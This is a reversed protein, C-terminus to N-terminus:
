VDDLFQSNLCCYSVMACRHSRGCDLVSVTVTGAPALSFEISEALKGTLRFSTM